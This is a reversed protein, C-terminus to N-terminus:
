YKQEKMMAEPWNTYSVKKDLKRIEEMDEFDLVFDFVQCNEGMREIHSTKPIVVVGNQIFFRLM